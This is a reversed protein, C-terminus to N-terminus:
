ATRATQAAERIRKELNTDSLTAPGNSVFDEYVPVLAESRLDCGNYFLVSGNKRFSGEAKEYFWTLNEDEEGVTWVLAPHDKKIAAFINEVTNNLWSSKTTALTALTALGRDTGEPLVIAVCQMNDDYYATFKTERLGDVFREITAEADLATYNAVLVAKLKEVDLEDISTAKKLSSGRRVLTGAGSDTFLEKQLDSPHIIAVSSSRPLDDLLEKIEKIKLRTGYRCWAQSMLYKFEQDLNIQSIKAGEGDFLGGKESLYIVKLPEFARSLEAAAVDANVNLFHGNDAEALSTLVPVYGAALSSEIAQKRVETIKGVYQWKEKDLYTAGFAGQISRTAVGLSDLREILRLNEELFLKRAIGLTKEDTVRIGEEFQPEVGADELLQNLQPGGGHVIIPYLGLEYLFLISRCLEDLHERLIAGGVKIVAFPSSATKFLSLYARAERKSGISSVAQAVIERTRDRTPSSAAPLAHTTSLARNLCRTSTAVPARSLVRAAALRAGAKVTAIHSRVGHVAVLAMMDDVLGKNAVLSGRVTLEKFVLDFSQYHFGDVPLGIAICTGQPRIVKLSWENAEVNDTCVIAAAVGGAEGGFKTVTQVADKANYDVVLDPRLNESEVGKALDLGEPRNDIAVTPHGLAKFFQIGLQGLGGIGIVAVPEKKSHDLKVAAIATWVTAGACMLPAAQEFSVNDPLLTSTNADAVMYEAFGGDNMIGAMDKKECFRVDPQDYPKTERYTRCGGCRGCAHEVNLAGVRQGVKWNKAAANRGVAVITGAPEHSPVMPLKSQYVGQFVQYDTHCFGAAEIKLLLDDDGIEPVPVDQLEYNQNFETLRAAKMTKPVSHTSM